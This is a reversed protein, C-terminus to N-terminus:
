LKGSMEIVYDQHHPASLCLLKRQVRRRECVEERFVKMNNSPYVVASLLWKLPDNLTIEFLHHSESEVHVFCESLFFDTFCYCVQEVQISSCLAANHLLLTFHLLASVCILRVLSGM